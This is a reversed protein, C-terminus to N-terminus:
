TGLAGDPGVGPLSAGPGGLGPRAATLVAAPGQGGLAEVRGGLQGVLPSADGPSAGLAEMAGELIAVFGMGGADVVGAKKLVPLQEPTKELAVRAGELAAQLVGVLGAGQEVAKQAAAAAAKGVTLLTGEVPEVVARYATEAARQFAYAVRSPSASERGEV